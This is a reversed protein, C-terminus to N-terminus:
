KADESQKIETRIAEIENQLNDVYPAITREPKVVVAAYGGLLAAIVVLPVVLGVWLKGEHELFKSM